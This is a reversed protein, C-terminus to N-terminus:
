RRSNVAFENISEELIALMNEQQQHTTILPPALYVTNGLPRLFLGKSLAIEVLVRRGKLNFYSGAGSHPLEFAMVGGMTRANELGLRRGVSEFWLKFGRQLSRAQTCLDEREAVALAANAAACAIPNATYSHGHLFAHQPENAWFLDFFEGSTLTAALPLNGGTLGKAVCVIDPIVNIQQFAFLSGLRGLGTFVEDFILFAGANRALSCLRELWQQDQLLMGGAGQVFPEVVVACLEEGQQAFVAELEAMRESRHADGAPCHTSKHVTLPTVFSCPFFLEKFSDHFGTSAALSMAGVTDGHYSGRVALYRKRQKQGRLQSAQFAMKLAVEVSTSGNDSFFVKGFPKGAWRLLTESLLVAPEHTVGAFLVHDLKQQQRAIAQAIEVRGHGITNVWWSSVGDIVRQGGAIELYVGSAGTIPLPTDAIKHQTFPHWVIEKDRCILEEAQRIDRALCEELRSALASALERSCKQFEQRHHPSIQALTFLPVDSCDRKFSIENQVHREGSWVMGLIRQARMRLAEISLFSHNLTGLQSCGVLIVRCDHLLPILSLWNEGKENLPVMLGGAAEVLLIDFASALQNLRPALDSVTPAPQASPEHSQLRAAQDPSMPLPFNFLTPSTACGSLEQVTRADEDRPGTQVPKCYGVRYGCEGLGKLLAASVVTKGVGTGTGAVFLIM